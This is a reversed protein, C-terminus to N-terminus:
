ASPRAGLGRRIILGSAIMNVCMLGGLVLPAWPLVFVFGVAILYFLSGHVYFWGADTAFSLYTHALHIAWLPYALFMLELRDDPVALRLVVWVVFSGVWEVTWITVFQRMQAPPVFRFTPRGAFHLVLQAGLIVALSVESMLVPYRPHDRLLFYAVLHVLLSVPALAFLWAAYRAFAPHYNARQLNRAILGFVSPPRAHVPEGALFRGLDAALAAASEYREGPEKHLCKLCVTELDKPVTPQLARPPVPPHEGVQRITDLVTEGVFPPRGTLLEYLIAGLSYVDTAPGVAKHNGTAQEPPMYSPSGVVVGTRTHGSDDGLRKALGFDTVKPTGDPALLVNAPKLDRHVIGRDHAHQVGRALAAVIEAARQPAIPAGGFRALSGGPVYELVLFPRGGAEGADFVQVINPHQLAAVARAEDRFRALQPGDAGGALIMKVAVVRDLQRDRARYVVGMGGSGIVDLIDYGDVVPMVPPRSPAAPPDIAARVRLQRAIRHRLEDQMAPDDPCLQEATVTAGQQRREEWEALLDYLRTTDTM